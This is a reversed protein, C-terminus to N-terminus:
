RGISYDLGVFPLLPARLGGRLIPVGVNAVLVWTDTVNWKVGPAVTLSKLRSTGPVLRITEVGELTPHPQAVSRIDGPTDVYRGLAEVGITLRPSAASTLALGYDIEDALGGFAVGVNAHASARAGELSGIGSLRVSSKGTGLLDEERGTPLRLDVAAAVSAGDEDFVTAKGRVLMDAVGVARASASAQTFQTGRYTNVRTGEMRLWVVPVAAGIDFKNGIGLNGYLTAIDADLKLTLQDVDFPEPEDVFQNATTILSGDRLNRGDLATFHLHQFTLGIAAMGAGTTLARDVFVPGFTQTSREVTGIDPNLRYAFAGSTSTVPLTALNALLARSITTSTAQAAATDRQVSGTDVSQNTVLFTLADSVTQQARAPVSSLLAGVLIVFSFIQSSRM